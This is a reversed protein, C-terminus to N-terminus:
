MAPKVFRYVFQSTRGRLGEDFVVRTLDDGPRVLVDSEADLQFGVSEVERRVQEPDIRHLSEVDRTGSGAEARHDVVVYVGGPKLLEYIQRNMVIRDVDMYAADHYILGSFVADLSGPEGELQDFAMVQHTVNPRAARLENMRPGVTDYRAFWDQPNQAVVAGEPGALGSLLWTSYGTLAGLDLVRDGPQIGSLELVAASERDGDREPHTAPRDPAALARAVASGAPAPGSAPSSTARASAPTLAAEPRAAESSAPPAAPSGVQAATVTAAPSATPRVVGDSGPPPLREPLPGTPPGACAAVWLAAAAALMARLM